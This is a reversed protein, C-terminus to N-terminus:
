QEVTRIIGWFKIFYINVSEVSYGSKGWISSDKNKQNKKFLMKLKTM